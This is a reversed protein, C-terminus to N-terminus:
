RRRWPVRGYALRFWITTKVTHFNVCECKGSCKRTMWSHPIVNYLKM